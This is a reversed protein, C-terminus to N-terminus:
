VSSSLHYEFFCLPPVKAFCFTSFFSATQIGPDNYIVIVLVLSLIIFVKKKKKKKKVQHMLIVLKLENKVKYFLKDFM